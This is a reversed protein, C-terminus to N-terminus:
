AGCAIKFAERLDQAIMERKSKEILYNKGTQLYSPFVRIGNYYFQRARIKYTSGAPIAPVGTNRRSIANLAKIAADGMLLYVSAHSFLALEQELLHSCNKVTAAAVAYDTRACKVATTIYIGRAVIDGMGKVPIGADNFAQLTTECYSAGDSEYFYDASNKPPAESIMVIKIKAPDIDVYPMMFARRNIDSCPFSDCSIRDSIKM